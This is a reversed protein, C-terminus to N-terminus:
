EGYKQKIMELFRFDPMCNAMVPAAAADFEGLDILIEASDALYPTTALTHRRDGSLLAETADDSLSLSSPTYITVNFGIGDVEIRQKGDEQWFFCGSGLLLTLDGHLWGCRLTVTTPGPCPLRSEVSMTARVQAQDREVYPEFAWSQAAAPEMLPMSAWAIMWRM